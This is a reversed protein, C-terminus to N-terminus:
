LLEFDDLDDLSSEKTPRTTGLATDPESQVVEYEEKILKETQRGEFTAVAQTLAASLIHSGRRPGCPADFSYTIDDDDDLSHAGSNESTDDESAATEKEELIDYRDVKHSLHSRKAWQSRRAAANERAPRPQLPRRTSPGLGKLHPFPCEQDDCAAGHKEGLAWKVKHTKFRHHDVSDRRLDHAALSPESSM